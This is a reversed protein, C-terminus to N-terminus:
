SYIMKEIPILNRPDKIERNKQLRSFRSILYWYPINYCVFRRTLVLIRKIKTNTAATQKM